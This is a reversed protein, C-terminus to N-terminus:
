EGGSGDGRGGEGGDRPGLNVVDVLQVNGGGVLDYLVEEITGVVGPIVGAREIAGAGSAFLVTNGGDRGDDSNITDVGWGVKEVDKGIDSSM